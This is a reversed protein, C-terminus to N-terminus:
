NRRGARGGRRGGRRGTPRAAQALGEELVATMPHDPALPAYRAHLAAISETRGEGGSRGLAWDFFIARAAEPVLDPMRYAEAILGRPDADPDDTKPSPPRSAATM